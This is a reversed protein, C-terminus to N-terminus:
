EKETSKANKLERLDQLTKSLLERNEEMIVIDISFSPKGSSLDNSVNFYSLDHCIEEFEQRVEQLFAASKQMM